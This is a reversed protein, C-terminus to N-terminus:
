GGGIPPLIAVVSGDTLKARCRESFSVYKGDVLIQLYQRITGMRDDIVFNGFETGYDNSLKKLLDVVEAGEPLDVRLEGSGVIEKLAAFLRVTIKM